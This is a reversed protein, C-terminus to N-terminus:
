NFRIRGLENLTVTRSWGSRTVTIVLDGAVMSAVGSSDVTFVAGKPSFEFNLASATLSTSTPLYKVPGDLSPTSRLSDNPGPSPFATPSCRNTANDVSAVGTVELTRFQGAAPCNFRVRLARSASVAKLRASQLEREVMRAAETAKQARILNNFSPISISALTVIGLMVFVLEVLTFGAEGGRNSSRV